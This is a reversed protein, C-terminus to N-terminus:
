FAYRLAFQIIRPGVSTTTIVGFTAASGVNTAPNSFQPHNLANFYESRFELYANENIGGVTTKKTLAVDFNAQGPGIAIGRGTNGYGTAGGVGNVQGIVPVACFANPNFYNNVRSDPSGSTLIDDYTMGPCM